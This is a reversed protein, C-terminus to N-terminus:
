SDTDWEVSASRSVLRAIENAKELGVVEVVARVYNNHYELLKSERRLSSANEIALDRQAERRFEELRGSNFGAIYADVVGEDGASQAVWEVAKHFVTRDAM